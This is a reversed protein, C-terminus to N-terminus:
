DFRWRAARASECNKRLAKVASDIQSTGMTKMQKKRNTVVLVAAQFAHWFEVRRCDRSGEAVEGRNLWYDGPTDDIRSVRVSHCEGSGIGQAVLYVAGAASNAWDDHEGSLHDIKSARWVLGLLQSELEPEDLLVVEGANLKPELAEYLESKTLESPMYGIGHSDFDNIFTLGAYLDGVIHFCRYLKLIAAFREVAKRPDFPPRQGQNMVVDLVVRNHGELHAIGLTADDSSGGSMDIFSSYTIHPQPPRMRCGREIADMVREASFASGEPSGPLNLHLRRYKHSPLRAKQQELYGKDEWSTRSPNAKDEPSANELAANTVYDASYWSFFMRRDEGKKGAAFLDFLPVGVRHYISAYSTIWQM